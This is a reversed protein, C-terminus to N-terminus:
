DRKGVGESGRGGWEEWALGMGTMLAGGGEWGSAIRWQGGQGWFVFATLCRMPVSLVYFTRNGQWAALSYYLGMAIAALSNGNMAPLAGSPLSFTSLAAEPSLLNFIGALLATLGFLYMSLTSLPAM